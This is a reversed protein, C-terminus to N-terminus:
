IKREEDFTNYLDEEKRLKKQKKEEVEKTHLKWEAERAAKEEKTFMDWVKPNKDWIPLDKEKEEIDERYKVYQKVLQM